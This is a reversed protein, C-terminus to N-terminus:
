LGRTTQHVYRVRTKPTDSLAAIDAELAAIARELEAMSRFTSSRDGDRLSSVGSDRITELKALRAQKDSLESM